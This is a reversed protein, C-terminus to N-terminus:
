DFKNCPHEGSKGLASRDRLSTSNQFHLNCFIRQKSVTGLCVLSYLQVLVSNGSCLFRVFVFVILNWFNFLYKNLPWMMLMCFERLCICESCAFLVSFKGYRFSCWLDRVGCCSLMLHWLFCFVCGLLSYIPCIYRFHPDQGGCPWSHRQLWIQVLSLSDLAMCRSWDNIKAVPFFLFCGVSARRSKIAEAFNGYILCM